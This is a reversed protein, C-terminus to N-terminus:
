SLCIVQKLALFGKKFYFAITLPLQFFVEPLTGLSLSLVQLILGPRSVSTDFDGVDGKENEGHFHVQFFSVVEFIVKGIKLIPTLIRYQWVVNLFHKGKRDTKFDVMIPEVSGEKNKGLGEGERWGMKRM